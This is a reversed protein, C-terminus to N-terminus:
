RSGHDYSLGLQPTVGPGTHSWFDHSGSGGEAGEGEALVTSLLLIGEIM